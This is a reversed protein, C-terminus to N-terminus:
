LSIWWLNVPFCTLRETDKVSDHCSTSPPRGTSVIQKMSRSEPVHTIGFQHFKKKAENSHLFNIEGDSGSNMLLECDETFHLNNLEIIMKRISDSDETYCSYNMWCCIELCWVSGLLPHFAKRVIVTIKSEDAVIVTNPLRWIRCESFINIKGVFTLKVNVSRAVVQLNIKKKKIILSIPLGGKKDDGGWPTSDLKDDMVSRPPRSGTQSNMTTPPTINMRPKAPQMPARLSFVNRSLNTLWTKIKWHTWVWETHACIVGSATLAVPTPLHSM